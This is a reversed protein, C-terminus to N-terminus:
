SPCGASAFCSCDSIGGVQYRISAPLRHSTLGCTPPVSGPSSSRSNPSHSSACTNLSAGATCSGAAERPGARLAQRGQLLGAPSEAPRPVTLSGISELTARGPHHAFVALSGELQRVNQAPFRSALPLELARLLLAPLSNTRAAGARFARGTGVVRSLWLPFPSSSASSRACIKATASVGASASARIFPSLVLFFDVVKPPPRSVWACHPAPGARLLQRLADDGHRLRLGHLRPPPAFM